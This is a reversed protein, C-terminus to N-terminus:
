AKALYESLQDLTGTWGQQMSERGAEFANRETETASHPSWRITLTTKGGHEAFTVTSLIELPWSEHMPHRTVGGEEDSFSV